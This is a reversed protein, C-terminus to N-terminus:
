SARGHKRLWAMFEAEDYVPINGIMEVPEPADGFRFVWSRVTIPSVPPTCREAAKRTTIRNMDNM